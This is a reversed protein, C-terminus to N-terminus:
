TPARDDGGATNTGVEGATVIPPVDGPPVGDRRRRLELIVEWLAMNFDGVLLRARFEIIYAVLEDWFKKLSNAGDSVEKKAIMYYM